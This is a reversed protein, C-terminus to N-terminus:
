QWKQQAFFPVNQLFTEVIIGLVHLFVSLKLVLEYLKQGAM